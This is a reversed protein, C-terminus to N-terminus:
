PLRFWQQLHLHVRIADSLVFSRGRRSTFVGEFEPAELSVEPYTTLSLFCSLIAANEVVRITPESIRTVEDCCYLADNM